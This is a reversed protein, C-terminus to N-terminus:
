IKRGAFIEGRRNVSCKNDIRYSLRNRLPAPARNGTRRLTDFRARHKIKELAKVAIPTERFSLLGPIYPFQIPLIAEATEVLELEPFSLVVVVARCTDNKLDFGLDIGAVTKVPADFVDQRVVEYALQKQVEIAAQPSLNWEHIKQIEM